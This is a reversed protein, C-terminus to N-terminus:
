SKSANKFLNEKLIKFFGTACMQLCVWHFIYPIQIEQTGVYRYQVTGYTGYQKKLRSKRFDPGFCM